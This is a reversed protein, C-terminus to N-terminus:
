VEIAVGESGFACETEATVVSTFKLKFVALLTATLYKTIPTYHTLVNKNPPYDLELNFGEINLNPNIEFLRNSASNVKTSGIDDVTYLTQRNLNSLEIVDFDM